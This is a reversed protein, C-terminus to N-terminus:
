TKPTTGESVLKADPIFPSGKDRLWCFAHVSFYLLPSSPRDPCLLSFLPSLAVLVITYNGERAYYCMDM